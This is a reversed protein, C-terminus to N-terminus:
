LLQAGAGGMDTGLGATAGSVNAVFQGGASKSMSMAVCLAACRSRGCHVVSSLVFRWSSARLVDGFYAYVVTVFTAVTIRQVTIRISQM